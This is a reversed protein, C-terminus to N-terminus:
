RLWGTDAVAAGGDAFGSEPVFGFGIKKTFLGYETAAGDFQDLCSEFGQDLSSVRGFESIEFAQVFEFQDDIQNM